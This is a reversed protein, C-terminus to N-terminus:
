LTHAALNRPQGAPASAGRGVSACKDRGARARALLVKYNLEIHWLRAQAPPHYLRDLDGTSRSPWQVAALSRAAM